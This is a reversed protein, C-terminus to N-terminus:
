QLLIYACSNYTHFNLNFRQRYLLTPMFLDIHFYYRYNSTIKMDNFQISKHKNDMRFVRMQTNCKNGSWKRLFFFWSVNVDSIFVNQLLM